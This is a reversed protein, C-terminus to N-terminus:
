SVSLPQWGSDPDNGSMDLAAQIEWVHEIMHGNLSPNVNHPLEVEADWTCSQGERLDQAGAVPLRKEYSVHRGEVLGPRSRSDGPHNDKVHAKETARLLLYVATIRVDSSATAHVRVTFATGRQAAPAEVQVTVAGGTLSDKLDKFFGM